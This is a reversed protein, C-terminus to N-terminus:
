AGCDKVREAVFPAFTANVCVMLVEFPPAHSVACSACFV